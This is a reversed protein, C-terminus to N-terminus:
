VELDRKRGGEKMHVIVMFHVHVAITDFTINEIIIYSPVCQSM